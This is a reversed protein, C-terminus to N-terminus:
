FLAKRHAAQGGARAFSCTRHRLGIVLRHRAAPLPGLHGRIFPNTLPLIRHQRRNLLAAIGGTKVGYQVQIQPDPCVSADAAPSFAATM